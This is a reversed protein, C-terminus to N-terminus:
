LCMGRAGAGYHWIVAPSNAHSGVHGVMKEITGGSDGLLASLHEEELGVYGLWGWLWEVVVGKSLLGGANQAANISHHAGVLQPLRGVLLGDVLLHDRAPLWSVGEFITVHDQNVGRATFCSWPLCMYVVPGRGPVEFGKRAWRDQEIGAAVAQFLRLAGGGDGGTTPTALSSLSSHGTGSHVGGVM